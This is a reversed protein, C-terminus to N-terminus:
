CSYTSIFFDFAFFDAFALDFSQAGKLGMSVAM